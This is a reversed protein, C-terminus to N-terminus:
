TQEIECVTIHGVSQFLMVGGKATKPVFFDFHLDEGGDVGGEGWQFVVGGYQLSPATGATRDAQIWETLSDIFEDFAIQGEISTEADSKMICLLSLTYPRFKRGNHAGGFAIRREEMSEIFMYIVAGIGIGAPQLAFLDDENAVKPLAEYLTSLYTINSNSPQLYDYIAQRVLTKSM